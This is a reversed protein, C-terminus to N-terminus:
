SRMQVPRRFMTRHERVPLHVSRPEPPSPVYRTHLFSIQNNDPSTAASVAAFPTLRPQVLEELQLSDEPAAHASAITAQAKQFM